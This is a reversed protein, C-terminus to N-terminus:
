LVDSQEGERRPGLALAFDIDLKGTETTFPCRPYSQPAQTTADDSSHTINRTACIAAIRTDIRARDRPNQHSKPDDLDKVHVTTLLDPAHRRSRHQRDVLTAHLRLIHRNALSIPNLPHTNNEIVEWLLM